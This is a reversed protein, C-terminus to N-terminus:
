SGYIHPVRLVTRAAEAKSQWTPMTKMATLKAVLLIVISRLLCSSIPGAYM